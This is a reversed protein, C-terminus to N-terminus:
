RAERAYRLVVDVSERTWPRPNFAYIRRGGPAIKPLEDVAVGLSFRSKAVRFDNGDELYTKTEGSGAGMRFLMPIAETVPLNSIWDDHICWSALATMSLRIGPPMRQPLETLLERYFTRESVTADFDIQLGISPNAGASELIQRVVERRVEDTLSAAVTEIRVVTIAAIGEPLRIPQLRPRASVHSGEVVLTKALVAVGAERPDLFELNEPREWAWLFVRPFGALPDGLLYPRGWQWAAPVFNGAVVLLLVGALGIWFRRGRRM